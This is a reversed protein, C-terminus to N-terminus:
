SGSRTYTFSTASPTSTIIQTGNLGVNTTNTITPTAGLLTSSTMTDQGYYRYLITTATVSEVVKKGNYGDALINNRVIGGSAAPAETPGNSIAYSVTNTSVASIDYTGNYRAGVGSVTVQEGVSFNHTSSTTLTATTATASRTTVNVTTPINIAVNIVDGSVFGHPAATTLTIMYTSSGAFTRTGSVVASTPLAVSVRDNVSYGHAASTGMIVADGTTSKSVVSTTTPLAVTITDGVSFNHAGLTGITAQNVTLDKSVIPATIPLAVTVSDGPSYGHPASTTLTATSGTLAKSIVSRTVPLDIVVSDGVSYGGNSATTLTVVNADLVKNVVETVETSVVDISDGVSYGHPRATTLKAVNSSLSKRLLPVSENLNVTVEEGPLLFHPDDTTLTVIGNTHYNKQIVNYPNINDNFVITNDGPAFKIWDVLTDVKSRHGIISGNFTVSRNYTDLELVDTNVLSVSGNASLVPSDEYVVGYSFTYPYTSNASTVVVPASGTDYPMGVGSVTVLDGVLLRHPNETTLTAENQFLERKIVRGMLGRGRLEQVITLTEETLANYITSGTGAPGTITFVGSVDATGINDVVAVSSDGEIRVTNLGENDADNWGYKIPDGARLGVSFETRGRANTTFIVPRGSLRVKAARTPEENTRLWASKRVLNIAAILKDRAAPIQDPHQPLFVGSLNLQRAKYRGTVDYSGDDTGRPIDPTEPEANVWWGDIDTCVWVVGAEDITNLVLDGLVIDANLEMGNFLKPAMPTLARNLIANEEAQSINDLYGGVFTAQEFLVADVHFIAGAPGSALQSIRVQAAVANAPAIATTSLRTWGERPEVPEINSRSEGIVVGSSNLWVISVSLGADPSAPVSIPVRVYASLAYPLTPTVSIPTSQVGSDNVSGKVVTLTDVGYFATESSISLASGNIPMWGSTGNRFSSNGLLNVRSM